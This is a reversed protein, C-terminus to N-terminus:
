KPIEWGDLAIEYIDMSSKNGQIRYTSLLAKKLKSSYKFYIDDNVTNFNPGLNVPESWSNGLNETVYIDYGGMGKYGDSSFFLFRGDPTIYPTTENKKTNVTMPLKKAKGWDNGEKYVVYIDSLSKDGDRDSVFYMTNGDATLTPAGDFYSTNITKNKIPKPRTWREQKTWKSVCIDSSRTPNKVDLVSTNVTLYVENEDKSIYNIADFGESNMRELKNTSRGWEEKEEDWESLYIDEFYRQDGPNINGGKTDPRRSVYYIKKGDETFLGAYDDYGSNINEDLLSKEYKLEDNKVSLAYEVNRICQKIDYAKKKFKSLQIEALKYDMLASDLYGQRHYAQALLFFIDGDTAESLVEAIRTYKLAYGYNNLSYHAKGIWYTAKSNYKDRVYAERFNRLADRLRGEDYATKGEEILYTAAVRDVISSSSDTPLPNINVEMSFAATSSLFIAIFLTYFLKMTIVNFREYQYFILGIHIM